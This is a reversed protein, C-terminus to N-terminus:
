THKMLIVIIQTIKYRFYQLAKWVSLISCYFRNYHYNSYYDGTATLAVNTASQAVVIYTNDTHCYDPNNHLLIVKPDEICKFVITQEM